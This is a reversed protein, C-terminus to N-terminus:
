GLVFPISLTLDIKDPLGAPLTTPAARLILVGACVYVRTAVGWSILRTRHDADFTM